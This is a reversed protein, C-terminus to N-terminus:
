NTLKGRIQAIRVLQIQQGAERRNLNTRRVAQPLVLRRLSSEHRQLRPGGIARVFLPSITSAAPFGHHFHRDSGSTLTIDVKASECSRHVVKAHLSTLESSKPFLRRTIM